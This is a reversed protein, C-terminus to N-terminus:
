VTGSCNRSTQSPRALLHSGRGSSPCRLRSVNWSTPHRGEPLPAREVSDLSDEVPTAFESGGWWFFVWGGRLSPGFVFGWFLTRFCPGLMLCPGSMHDWFLTRFCLGLVLGWSLTRFCPGLILDRFSTALRTGWGFDRFVTALRTGSLQHSCYGYTIM